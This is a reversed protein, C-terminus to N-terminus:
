AGKVKKGDQNAVICINYPGKFDLVKKEHQISNSEYYNCIEDILENRGLKKSRDWFNCCPVVMVRTYLASKVVSEIAEDPHLGVVLDYFDAMEPKFHEQRSRVGRLVHGRPDIVEADYNYKKQLVRSLMDQGGAVDAIYRISRGFSEHVYGSM